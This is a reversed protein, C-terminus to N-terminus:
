IKEHNFRRRKEVIKKEGTHINELTHFEKEVQVFVGTHENWGAVLHCYKDWGLKEHLLRAALAHSEDTNKEYQYPITISGAECWAKIRAGRTNTPSLYKTLIAQRM